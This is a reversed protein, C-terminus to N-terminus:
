LQSFARRISARVRYVLAYWILTAALAPALFLAAGLFWEGANFAFIAGFLAFALVTSAIYRFGEMVEGGLPM